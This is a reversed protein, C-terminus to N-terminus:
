TGPNLFKVLVKTCFTYKLFSHFSRGIESKKMFIIFWLLLVMNDELVEIRICFLDVECGLRLDSVFQVFIKNGNEGLRGYTYKEFM